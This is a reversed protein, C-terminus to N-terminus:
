AYDPREMIMSALMNNKTRYTILMKRAVRNDGWEKSGLAKICNVLAMLRDFM